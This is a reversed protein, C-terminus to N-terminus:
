VFCYGSTVKLPVKINEYTTTILLKRMLQLLNVGVYEQSPVASELLM